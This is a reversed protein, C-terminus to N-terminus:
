AAHSNIFESKFTIIGMFISLLEHKSESVQWQLYVGEGKWDFRGREYRWAAKGQLSVCRNKLEIHNVPDYKRTLGNNLTVNKEGNIWFEFRRKFFGKDILKLREGSSLRMEFDARGRLSQPYSFRCIDQQDKVLRWVPKPGDSMIAFLV